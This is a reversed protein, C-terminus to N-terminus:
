VGSSTAPYVRRALSMTIAFLIMGFGAGALDALWDAFECTRNVLPQTLEDLAGYVALTGFIVVFNALRLPRTISRQLTWAVSALYALGTYGVFHCIKDIGNTMYVAHPLRPVHTSTLLLSWYVVLAVLGWFRWPSESTRYNSRASDAEYPKM